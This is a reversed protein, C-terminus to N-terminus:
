ISGRRRTWGHIRGVGRPAGSLSPHAHGLLQEHRPVDLAALLEDGLGEVVVWAGGAGVVQEGGGVGEEGGLAAAEGGPDGVGVGNKAEVGRERGGAVWVDDVCVVAAAGEQQISGVGVAGAREGEGVGGAEDRFGPGKERVREAFGGEVGVENGSYGGFGCCSARGSGRGLLLRRRRRWL